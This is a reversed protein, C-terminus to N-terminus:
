LLGICLLVGEREVCLARYGVYGVSRIKLLKSIWLHPGHMAEFTFVSYVDDTFFGPSHKVKELSSSASSLSLQSLIQGAKM